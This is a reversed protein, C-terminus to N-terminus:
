SKRVGFLNADAIGRAVFRAKDQEPTWGLETKAKDNGYPSLQARSKWDRFSPKTLGKKKALLRKLWYKAVDVVYYTWLPTPKARMAVGYADEIAAFYDRSSLMPEGILNYSAGLAKEHEMALVLGDAVDDVLVFPMVNRGDGWMKCATAGRWMAIGWHQLPGGEGIVIGPRAIVLPLGRERELKKLEEECAAKSRAYLNRRTLDHDFPTAESIIRDYQSADYSDITGTYILRKVGAALAAEGIRRTVAVDNELYGEWSTETARALHFVAGVGDMAAHLDDDSKLSGTYISIRGDARELGAGSGRSFVRVSYGKDALAHCLARGIFGTGGIVLVTEGKAEAAGRSPPPTAPLFKPRAVEVTNEIMTTANAALGASLRRDVPGGAQMSAYYSDVARQISLGYPALGNLSKLQRFANAAGTRTAQGALSLQRAFPGVVIDQMSARERTYSDEAFNYSAIAGLGRLRVSRNDEGEVLSLNLVVSAGKAEGAIRWSQYHGVGGPLTVPNRMSVSIDKLEGFLDAVFAFLHPGIEFLINEPKRLMWLNYPGSRLPPLPFQWNAEFSDIPGIVRKEIDAKLRDYSPLMLFNHNVGLAVNKEKALADLRRCDASNLAFPKEVFAAVGAELIKTAAEAHLHPPTLVHVCDAVGSALLNDLSTFVHAAGYANAIGEAAGKSLDCVAALEVGPTRKLAEAHWKSIYGAGLLAVKIPKDTMTM